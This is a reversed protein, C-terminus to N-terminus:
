FPLHDRLSDVLRLTTSHHGLPPNQNESYISTMGQLSVLSPAYKFCDCMGTPKIGPICGNQNIEGNEYFVIEDGDKLGQQLFRFRKFEEVPGFRYMKSRWVGGCGNEEDLSYVELKRVPCPEYAM